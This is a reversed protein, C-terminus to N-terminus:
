GKYSRFAVIKLKIAWKTHIEFDSKILIPDLYNLLACRFNYKGMAFIQVNKPCKEITQVSPESLQIVNIANLNQFNRFDVFYIRNLPLNFLFYLGLILWTACSNELQTWWHQRFHNKDNFLKYFDGQGGYIPPSQSIHCFLSLSYKYRCNGSIIGM